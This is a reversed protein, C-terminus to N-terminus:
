ARLRSEIEVIADKKKKIGSNLTIQQSMQRAKKLKAKLESIERNLRDIAELHGIWNEIVEPSALSYSGTLESANFAVVRDRLASYFALFNTFPLRALACDAMFAKAAKDARQPDFWPTLWTDKVVWKSKDAQNIRKDALSVAVGDGHGFVIAVPYPIAKHMFAAIREARDPSALEVGLIAVEPFDWTKDAYAEINITSPKLTHTWRVKAVEDKLAKKDTADLDANESFLKKFVVRDLKCSQPIGLSDLFVDIM